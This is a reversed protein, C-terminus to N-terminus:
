MVHKKKHVSLFDKHFNEHFIFNHTFLLTRMIIIVTITIQIFHYWEGRWSFFFFPFFIRASIKWYISMIFYNYDYRERLQMPLCTSLTHLVNNFLLVNHFRMAIFFKFYSEVHLPFLPLFYYFQRLYQLRIWHSFKGGKTEFHKKKKMWLKLIYTNLTSRGWYMFSQRLILIFRNLGPQM